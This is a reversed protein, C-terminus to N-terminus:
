PSAAFISSLLRQQILVRLRQRRQWRLIASTARGTRRRRKAGKGAYPLPTLQADPIGHSGVSGVRARRDLVWDVFFQASQKSIRRGGPGIEVYWPATSAFTFAPLDDAIARM